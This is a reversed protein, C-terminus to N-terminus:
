ATDPVAVCGASLQLLEAAAAAAHVDLVCAGVCLLGTQEANDHCCSWEAAATVTLM